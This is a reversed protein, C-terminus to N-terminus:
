QYPSAGALASLLWVCFVRGHWWAGGTRSKFLTNASRQLNRILIVTPESAGATIDLRCRLGLEDCLDHM